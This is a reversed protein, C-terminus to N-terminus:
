GVTWLCQTVDFLLRVAKILGLDVYECDFTFIGYSEKSAMVSKIVHRHRIGNYDVGFSVPKFDGIPNFVASVCVPYGSPIHIQERPIYHGFIM